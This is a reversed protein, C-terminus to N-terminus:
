RPRWMVAVLAAGAAAVLAWRLVFGSIALWDALSARTGGGVLHIVAAAALAATAGVALAWLLAGLCAGIVQARRGVGHGSPFGSALAVATVSVAVLPLLLHHPGAALSGTSVQSREAVVRCAGLVVAVAIVAASAVTACQVVRSAYWSRLLAILPAM